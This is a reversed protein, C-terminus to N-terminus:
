IDLGSVECQSPKYEIKDGKLPLSISSLELLSIVREPDEDSKTVHYKDLTIELDSYGCWAIFLYDGSMLLRMDEPASPFSDLLESPREVFEINKNNIAEILHGESLIM